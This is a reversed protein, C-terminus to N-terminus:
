RTCCTTPAEPTVYMGFVTPKAVTLGDTGGVASTKSLMGYLVMSLALTLMAFFIGRYRALLPAFVLRVLGRCLTGIM